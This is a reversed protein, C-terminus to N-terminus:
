YKDKERAYFHCISMGWPLLGVVPIGSDRQDSYAKNRATISLRDKM